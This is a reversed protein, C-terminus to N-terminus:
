IHHNRDVGCGLTLWDGMVWGLAPDALIEPIRLGEQQLIKERHLRRIHQSLIWLCGAKCSIKPPLPLLLGEHLDQLVEHYAFNTLASSPPSAGPLFLWPTTIRPPPVLSGGGGWHMWTKRRWVELSSEIEIWWVWLHMSWWMTMRERSLLTLHLLELMKILSQPLLDFLPVLVSSRLWPLLHLIGFPFCIFVHHIVSWYHIFSFRGLHSAEITPLPPVEARITPLGLYTENTLCSVM